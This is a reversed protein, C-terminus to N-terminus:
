KEALALRLSLLGVAGVFSRRFWVMVKPRFVNYVRALSTFAGFVVFVVLSTLLFEISM